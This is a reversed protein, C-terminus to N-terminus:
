GRSVPVRHSSGSQEDVTMSVSLIGDAYNASITDEKAGRPLRIARTFSGYRFESHSNESKEESRHASITLVNDDVSIDVDKDPDVGPLEARVVYKGDKMSDEIRINKVDLPNRGTFFTPMADAWDLLNPLANRKRISTSLQREKQM